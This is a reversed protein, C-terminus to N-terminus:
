SGKKDLEKGVDDADKLSTKLSRIGEGLNKAFSPIRKAGFLIAIALIIILAEQMGIPGLLAM